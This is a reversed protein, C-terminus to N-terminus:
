KKKNKFRIDNIKLNKLFSDPLHLPTSNNKTDSGLSRFFFFLVPAVCILLVLLALFSFPESGSQNLTNSVSEADEILAANLPNAIDIQNV